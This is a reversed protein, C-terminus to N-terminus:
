SINIICIINAREVRRDMLILTAETIPKEKRQEGDTQRNETRQRDETQERDCKQLEVATYYLAAM